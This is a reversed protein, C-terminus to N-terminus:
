REVRASAESRDERFGSRSQGPKKTLPRGSLDFAFITSPERVTARHSDLRQAPVSQAKNRPPIIRSAVTLDNDGTSRPYSVKQLATWRAVRSTRGVRLM